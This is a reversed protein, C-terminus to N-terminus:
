STRAHVLREVVGALWDVMLALAAVIAGAIVLV